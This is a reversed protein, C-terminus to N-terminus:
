WQDCIWQRINMFTFVRLDHAKPGCRGRSIKCRTPQGPCFCSTVHLIVHTRYGLFLLFLDVPSATLAPPPSATATPVTAAATAAAAALTTAAAAAALTAAAAATTALTTAAALTQHLDMQFGSRISLECNTTTMLAGHQM